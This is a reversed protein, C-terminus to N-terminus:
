STAAMVVKEIEPYDAFVDARLLTKLFPAGQLYAAVTLEAAAEAGVREDTGLYKDRSLHQRLYFETKLTFHYQLHTDTSKTDIIGMYRALKLAEEVHHYRGFLIERIDFPEEVGQLVLGVQYFPIVENFRNPTFSKMQRNMERLLIFILTQARFDILNRSPSSSVSQTVSRYRQFFSLALSKLQYWYRM